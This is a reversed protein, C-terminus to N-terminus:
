KEIEKYINNVMFLVFDRYSSTLASLAALVFWVILLYDIPQVIISLYGSEEDSGAVNTNGSLLRTRGNSIYRVATPTM